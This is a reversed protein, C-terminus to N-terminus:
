KLSFGSAFNFFMTKPSSFLYSHYKNSLFCKFWWKSCNPNIYISPEVQSYPYVAKKPLPLEVNQFQGFGALVILLCSSLIIAKM